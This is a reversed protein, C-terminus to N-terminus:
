DLKEEFIKEWQKVIVKDLFLDNVKESNSKLINEDSKKLDILEEFNETVIENGDLFKKVSSDKKLYITKELGLLLITNGLSGQVEHIFFAIDIKELLKIYEEFPLMKLIPVFREGFYKKGKKMVNNTWKLNESDGYSLPCFIKIEKNNKLKEFVKIHDNIPDASNGVLINMSNNIGKRSIIKKDLGWSYFAKYYKGKKIKYSEKAKNFEEEIGIMYGYFQSKIYNSIIKNLKGKITKPKFNFHSYDGGWMMWYSKKLYNRKIFYFIGLYPWYFGHIIIKKYKKFSFFVYFKILERLNNALLINQEVKFKIKQPNDKQYIIFYHKEIDFYKKIFEIYQKSYISAIMLHIIM